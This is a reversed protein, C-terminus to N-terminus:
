LLPDNPGRRYALVSSRREDPTLVLSPFTEVLKLLIAKAAEPTMAVVRARARRVDDRYEPGPDFIGTVESMSDEERKQVHVRPATRLRSGGQYASAEEIEPIVHSLAHRTAWRVTAAWRARKESDSSFVWGNLILPHPPEPIAPDGARKWVELLRQHVTAWVDPMPCIFRHSHQKMLQM